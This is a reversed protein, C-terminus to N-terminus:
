LEYNIGPLKIKGTKIVYKLTNKLFTLFIKTINFFDNLMWFIM